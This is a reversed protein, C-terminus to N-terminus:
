LSFRFRIGLKRLWLIWIEAKRLARSFLALMEVRRPHGIGQQGRLSGLYDIAPSQKHYNALILVGLTFVASLFIKCMHVCFRRGHYIRGFAFSKLIWQCRGDLFVKSHSPLWTEKKRSKKKSRLKLEQPKLYRIM